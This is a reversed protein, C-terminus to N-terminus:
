KKKMSATFMKNKDIEKKKPKEKKKIDPSLGKRMEEVCVDCFRGTKIGKGCRECEILLSSNESVIELKGQRIYRLITDEEVGTEESVEALNAGPNDYIYERVTKFSEDETRRCRECIKTIGTYQFIRGCKKCNKLEAM